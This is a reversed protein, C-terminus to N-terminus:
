ASDGNTAEEITNDKAMKSPTYRGEIYDKHSKSEIHKLVAWVLAASGMAVVPWHDGMFKGLTELIDKGTTWNDLNLLKLLWDLVGSIFAGVAALGAGIAHRLKSVPNLKTSLKRLDKASLDLDYVRKLIPMVGMQPDVFTSSYVGDRVYKGRTYHQSGGWLYPNGGKKNRYGLGNFKEAELAMRGPDWDRIRDYNKLTVLADVASEEFSDYPGRGKPIITTRKTLAQGNCLNKTFDLNSERYHCIAIFEWPVGGCLKSCEQYRKKQAIIRRAISDIQPLKSPHIVMTEFLQSFASKWDM